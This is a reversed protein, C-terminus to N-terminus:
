LMLWAFFVYRFELITIQFRLLVYQENVISGGFNFIKPRKRRIKFEELSTLLYVLKSNKIWTVM